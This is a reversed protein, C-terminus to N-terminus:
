SGELEASPYKCLSRVVVSGSESRELTGCTPEGDLVAKLESYLMRFEVPPRVQPLTENNLWTFIRAWSTAAVPPLQLVVWM